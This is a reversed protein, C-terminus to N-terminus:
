PVLEAILRDVEVAQLGPSLARLPPARGAPRHVLWADRLWDGLARGLSQLPAAMGPTVTRGAKAEVFRLRGGAAPVLLDVELGQEDRFYYLERRGGRSLQTKLIIAAVFGEWL